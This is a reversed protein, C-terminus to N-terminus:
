GHGLVFPHVFSGARALGDSDVRVAPVTTSSFADQYSGSTRSNPLSYPAPHHEWGHPTPVEPTGSANNWHDIPSESSIRPNSSAPPQLPQLYALYSGPDAALATTTNGTFM